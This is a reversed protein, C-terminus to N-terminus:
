HFWMSLTVYHYRLVLKVNGKKPKPRNSGRHRLREPKAQPEARGETWWMVLARKPLYRVYTVCLLREVNGARGLRRTSVSM